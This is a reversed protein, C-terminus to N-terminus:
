SPAATEATAGVVEVITATAGGADGLTVRRGVEADDRHVYGLAIFGDGTLAPAVSTLRGTAREGNVLVTGRAPADQVARDIALKVLRRAVRGGGRHLVRIIVEQGVYCGKSTSIARDLLGAELPITESDMDVGFAPRGADVRLAEVMAPAMAVIGASGIEAIIADRDASPAVVAFAPLRADDIRAVFGGAISAQGHMPLADLERADIALARAIGASAAGGVVIIEALSGSVDSVRVDEAFIVQDFRSALAAAGGADVGVAVFDGRHYVRLDAIMRGQPTLYTAYVGLGEGLGSVDNSVLAQLFRIADSGDFRLRGTSDTRDAWGAGAAIIRYQDTITPM